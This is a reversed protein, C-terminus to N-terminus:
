KWLEVYYHSFNGMCFMKENSKKLKTHLIVSKKHFECSFNFFIQM